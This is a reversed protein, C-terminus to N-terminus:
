DETEIAWCNGNNTIGHTYGEEIKDAVERLDIIMDSESETQLNISKM